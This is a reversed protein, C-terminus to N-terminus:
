RLAHQGGTTVRQYYLNTGRVYVVDVFGDPTLFEIAEPSLNTAITVASTVSTMLDPSARLLLSARSGYDQMFLFLSANTSPVVLTKGATNVLSTNGIQTQHLVSVTSSPNFTAGTIYQLDGSRSPDDDPRRYIVDHIRDLGDVDTGVPTFTEDITKTFLFGQADILSGPQVQVNGGVTSIDFGSTVGSFNQKVSRM